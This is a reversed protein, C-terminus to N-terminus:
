AVGPGGQQNAQQNQRTGPPRQLTDTALEDRGQILPVQHVHGGGIGADRHALGPFQQLLSVLQDARHRLHDGHEALDATGLGGGVRRGEAHDLGENLELGPVLPPRPHSGVAEFLLEIAQHFQRPKGVGPHHRDLGADIHQGGTDLRRHADLHRSRFQLGDLLDALM